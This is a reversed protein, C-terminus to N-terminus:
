QGIAARRDRPRGGRVEILEPEVDEHEISGSQALEDVAEAGFAEDDAGIVRERQAELAGDLLDAREPEPRLGLCRDQASIGRLKQAERLVLDYSPGVMARTRSTFGSRTSSGCIRPM